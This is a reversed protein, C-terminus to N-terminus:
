SAVPPSFAKSELPVQPLLDVRALRTDGIAYRSMPTDRELDSQESTLSCAYGTLPLLPLLDVRAL